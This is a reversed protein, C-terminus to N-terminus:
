VRERCSARGIQNAVTLVSSDWGFEPLYKLFKVVRQVGAGGVPPFPYSIFLVRKGNARLGPGEPSIGHLMAGPPEATTLMVGSAM